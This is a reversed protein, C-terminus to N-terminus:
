GAGAQQSSAFSAGCTGQCGHGSIRGRESGRFENGGMKVRARLGYAAVTPRGRGATLKGAAVSPLQRCQRALQKMRPRGDRLSTMQDAAKRTISPM